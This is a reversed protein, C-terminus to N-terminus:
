SLLPKFMMGLSFHVEVFSPVGRGIHEYDLLRKWPLHLDVGFGLAMDLEQHDASVNPLSEPELVRYDFYKGMFQIAEPLPAPVCAM